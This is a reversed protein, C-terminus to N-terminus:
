ITNQLSVFSKHTKHSNFVVFTENQPPTDRLHMQILMTYYTLTLGLYVIDYRYVHRTSEISSLASSDSDTSCWLSSCHVVSDFKLCMETCNFVSSEGSIISVPNSTGISVASSTCGFALVSCFMHLIQPFVKVWRLLRLLCSCFSWLPSVGWAQWSHPSRKAELRRRWIWRLSWLTCFGWLHVSQSLTNRKGLWKLFWM